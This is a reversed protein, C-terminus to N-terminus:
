LLTEHKHCVLSNQYLMVNTLKRNFEFILFHVFTKAIQPKTQFSNSIGNQYHIIM